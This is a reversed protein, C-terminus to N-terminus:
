KALTWLQVMNAEFSPILLRRRKADFGIAAPTTLGEIIKRERGARIELIAGADLSSVLWAEGDVIIGDYGGAGQWVPAAARAGPRWEFIHTGQLATIFFRGRSADWTIGSPSELDGEFALTAKGDEGIRFVRDPGLHRANDGNFALRSDTVYVARDPGTTMENLFLAAVPTMDVSRILRGTRRDFARVSDIDAIWLEGGLIALGKPANLTVGKHGGEIFRPTLVRGDPAVRSVYGNNDHATGAGNINSVFYVDQEVDHLVCVPADFHTITLFRTAPEFATVLLALIFSIHRM